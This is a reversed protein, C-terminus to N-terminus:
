AWGAAAERLLRAKIRKWRITVTRTSCGLRAAIAVQNQQALKGRFIPRDEEPLLAELRGVMEDAAERSLEALPSSASEAQRNQLLRELQPAHNKEIAARRLAKILKNRAVIVLWREFQELTELEELQRDAHERLQRCATRQISQAVDDLDKWHHGPGFRRTLAQLVKPLVEIQVLRWTTDDNARLLDALRQDDNRPPSM